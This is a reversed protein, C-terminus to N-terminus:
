SGLAWSGIAPPSSCSGEGKPLCQGRIGERWGLQAFIVVQGRGQFINMFEGGCENMVEEQLKKEDEEYVKMKKKKREGGREM